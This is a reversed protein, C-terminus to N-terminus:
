LDFRILRHVIQHHFTKIHANFAPKIILFEDQNTCRIVAMILFAAKMIQIESCPFFSGATGVILLLEVVQMECCVLLQQASQV